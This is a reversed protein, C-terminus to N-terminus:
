RCVTHRGCCLGQTTIAHSAIHCVLLFNLRQNVGGDELMTLYVQKAGIGPSTALTQQCICGIFDPLSLPLQM